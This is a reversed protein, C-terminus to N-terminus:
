NVSIPVVVSHFTNTPLGLTGIANGTFIGFHEDSISNLGIFTNSIPVVASWVVIGAPDVTLADDDPGNGSLTNGVIQNDNANQFPTHSHIAVGPLGNNRATNGIVFNHYAAAGPPGAFVGIGAAGNHNSTNNVILNDYVGGIGAPVPPLPPPRFFHSALTIGCDQPNDLVDNGTIVNANTPGNEDTLLIGGVNHRVLNNSILSFSVSFLHIAEGCDDQGICGPPLTPFFFGRDNNLVRNRAITVHSTNQALIGELTANKVTFGRVVTGSADNGSILIGNDFGTADIITQDDSDNEREDEDNNARNGRGNEREDDDDKANNGILTLQKLVSVSEAYTGEAVRILDGPDAQGVAYGITRCPSHSCNGTDHGHKSVHRTTAAATTATGIALVVIFARVLAFRKAELRTYETIEKM